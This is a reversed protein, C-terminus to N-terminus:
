PAQTSSPNQVHNQRVVCATNRVLASGLTTILCLASWLCPAMLRRSTPPFSLTVRPASPPQTIGELGFLLVKSPLLSKLPKQWICMRWPIPFSFSFPTLM